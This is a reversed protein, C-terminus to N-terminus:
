FVGGPSGGNGGNNHSSMGRQKLNAERNQLVSSLQSYLLFIIMSGIFFMQMTENVRDEFNVPSGAVMSSEQTASQFGEDHSFVESDGVAMNNNFNALLNAMRSFIDVCLDPADMDSM